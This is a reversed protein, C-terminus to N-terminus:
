AAWEEYNTLNDRLPVGVSFHTVVYAAELGRLRYHLVHCVIENKGEHDQEKGHM